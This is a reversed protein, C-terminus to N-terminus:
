IRITLRYLRPRRSGVNTETIQTDDIVTLFANGGDGKLNDLLDSMETPMCRKEFVPGQACILIKLM